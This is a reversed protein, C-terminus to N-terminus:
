KICKTNDDVDIKTCITKYDYCDNIITGDPSHSIEVHENRNRGSLYKDHNL